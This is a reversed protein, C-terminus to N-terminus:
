SRDEDKDETEEDYLYEAACAFFAAIAVGGHQSPGNWFRGFAPWFAAVLDAFFLVLAAHILSWKIVHKIKKARAATVHLRPLPIARAKM